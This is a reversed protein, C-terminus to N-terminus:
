VVSHSQPHQVLNPIRRRIVEAEELSPQSIDIFGAVAAM